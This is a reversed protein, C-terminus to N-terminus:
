GSVLGTLSWKPGEPQHRMHAARELVGSWAEMQQNAKSLRAIEVNEWYSTLFVWEM